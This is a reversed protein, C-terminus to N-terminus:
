QFLISNFPHSSLLWSFDFAGKNQGPEIAFRFNHTAAFISGIEQRPVLELIILDCSSSLIIVHSDQGHSGHRRTKLARRSSKMTTFQHYFDFPFGYLFHRLGVFRLLVFDKSFGYYPDRYFRICDTPRRRGRRKLSSVSSM